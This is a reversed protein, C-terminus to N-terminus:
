GADREAKRAQHRRLWANHADIENNRLPSYPQAWKRWEEPLHGNCLASLPAGIGPLVVYRAPRRCKDCTRWDPVPDHYYRAPMM